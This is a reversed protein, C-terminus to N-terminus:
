GIKINKIQPVNNLELSSWEFKSALAHIDIGILNNNEDIDININDNIAITEHSPKDVFEIYMSDTDKFYDIRM